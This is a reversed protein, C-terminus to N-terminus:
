YRQVTSSFVTSHTDKKGGIGIGLFAFVHEWWPEQDKGDNCSDEERSRMTELGYSKKDIVAFVENM